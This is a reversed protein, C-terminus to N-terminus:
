PYKIAVTHKTTAIYVNNLRTIVKAIINYEVTAIEGPKLSITFTLVGSDASYQRLIEDNLYIGEALKGLYFEVKSSNDSLFVKLKYTGNLVLQDKEEIVIRPYKTKLKGNTLYEKLNTGAFGNSFTAESMLGGGEWYKKTIGNRKDGVYMEAKYLAGSKYYRKQIGELLANSYNLESRKTIGDKYYKVAKGDLKKDKFNMVAAVKGTKYYQILEGEIIKGEEDRIINANADSQTSELECGQIVLVWFILTVIKTKFFVKM